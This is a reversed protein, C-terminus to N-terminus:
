DNNRADDGGRPQKYIGSKMLHRRITVTSYRVEYSIESLSAGSLHMSMMRRLQTQTIRPKEPKPPPQAAVDRRLKGPTVGLAKAVYTVCHGAAYLREAEAIQEATMTKRPRAAVGARVHRNRREMWIEYLLLRVTHTHPERHTPLSPDRSYEYIREPAIGLVSAAWQAPHKIGLEEVDALAARMQEHPPLHKIATWAKISM